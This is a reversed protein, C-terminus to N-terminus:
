YFTDEDFYGVQGAAQGLQELYAEHHVRTLEENTASRTALDTRKLDFDALAIAARAAHLREPREPHGAPALHECFLPDDVLVLTKQMAENREPRGRMLRKRRARVLSVLWAARSRFDCM